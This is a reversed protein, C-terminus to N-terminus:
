IEQKMAKEELPKGWESVITRGVNVIDGKRREKLSLQGMNM